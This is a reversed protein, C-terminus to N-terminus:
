TVDKTKLEATSAIMRSLWTKYKKKLITILDPRPPYKTHSIPNGDEDVAALEVRFQSEKDPYNSYKEKRYKKGMEMKDFHLIGRGKKAKGNTAGAARKDENNSWATREDIVRYGKNLMWLILLDQETPSLKAANVDVGGVEEHPVKGGGRKASTIFKTIGVNDGTETPKFEKEWAEGKNIHTLFGGIDSLLEERSLTDTETATWKSKDIHGNRVLFERWSSSFVSKYKTKGKV